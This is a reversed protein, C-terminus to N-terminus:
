TRTWGRGPRWHEGPLGGRQAEWSTFRGRADRPRLPRACARCPGALAALRWLVALPLVVLAVPVPLLCAALFTVWLAWALSVAAAWALRVPSSRHPCRAPKPEPKGWIVDRQEADGPLECELARGLAADDGALYERVLGAWSDPPGQGGFLRDLDAEALGPAHRGCPRGDRALEGMAGDWLEAPTVALGCGDDWPFVATDHPRPHEERWCEPCARRADVVSGDGLTVLAEGTGPALSRIVAWTGAPNADWLRRWRPALGQSIKGERVAEALVAERYAITAMGTTSVAASPPVFGPPLGVEPMVHAGKCGLVAGTPEQDKGPM